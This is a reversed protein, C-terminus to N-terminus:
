GFAYRLWTDIYKNERKNRFIKLEKNVAISFIIQTILRIRWSEMKKFCFLWCDTVYVPQQSFIASKLFAV